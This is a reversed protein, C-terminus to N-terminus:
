ETKDRLNGRMTYNNMDQQKKLLQELISKKRYKLTNSESMEKKGTITKKYDISTNTVNQKRKLRRAKM